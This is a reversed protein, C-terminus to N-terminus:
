TAILDTSFEAFGALGALAFRGFDRRNFDGKM